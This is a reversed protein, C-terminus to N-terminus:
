DFFRLRDKVNEAELTKFGNVAPTIKRLMGTIKREGEEGWTSDRQRILDEEEGIYGFSAIHPVEHFLLQDVFDWYRELHNATAMPAKFMRITEGPNLLSLLETQLRRAQYATFAVFYNDEDDDLLGKLSSFIAMATVLYTAEMGARRMNRKDLDSLQQYLKVFQGKNGIANRMYGFLTTYFGRTVTGMELDVHYNEGHGIRRRYFPVFYNKFLLILKGAVSSAAASADMDGKIQNTRRNIGALKATFANIDFNAIKPNVRLVGDEGMILNEWLNGEIPNGQADVFGTTAHMLALMKVATTQHEVAQQGAFFPNSKAAKKLKSGTLNKGLSDYVDTMADFMQMAQALKTKNSFVGMDAIAAGEQIYTKAAWRRDARTFFEGAHAEMGTMLNDLIAQNGIQLFNFALSNLATLQIATDALKQGSIGGIEAGTVEFKGYFVKDVFDQLHKYTRDDGVMSQEVLEEAGKAKSAIVDIVGLGGQEKIVQRREHLNTMANVLGHVKGKEEYQHAMQAFQIISSIVDRSIDAADVRNTYYVPISKIEEGSNDIVAGFQTDTAQRTVGEVVADKMTAVIGQEKMRDYDTKRISPMVYSMENWPDTFMRNKGSVLEQKERYLEVVYDYYAKLEPTQDIKKFKDSLYSDNPVALSGMFRNGIPDFVKSKEERLEMLEAELIAIDMTANSRGNKILDASEQEQLQKLKEETRNIEAILDNYKAQAGPADKTNDASWKAIISRYRKYELSPKGKKDYKWAKMAAYDSPDPMKTVKAANKLMENQKKYFENTDWKQVLSLVEMTSGDPNTIEVTTLIDDNLKAVDDEQGMFSVFDKYPQESQQIVEVTRRNGNQRAARLTNAFLQLNAENSYVLPDMLASFRSKNMAAETLEKVLEKRGVKKNKLTEIKAEVLARNFGEIGEAEVIKAKNKRVARIAPDRNFVAGVRSTGSLDYPGGSALQNQLTAIEKDLETNVASEEGVSYLADAVLPAIVAAYDADISQLDDLSDRLELHIRYLKNTDDIELDGRKWEERLTRNIKNITSNSTNTNFLGDLIYKLENAKNLLDMAEQKTVPRNKYKKLEDFLQRARAAQITAFQQFGLFADIEDGIENINDLRKDLNKLLAIDSKSANDGMRRIRAMERKVAIRAEEATAKVKEQVEKSLQVMPNFEGQSIDARIEGAFLEEAMQAAADPSIGFLKGIARLIKNIIRQLKSPNNREIRAGEIGIATVLIEKALQDGSLEPYKARVAAGLEPRLQEVQAADRRVQEIPLRDVLIHAFEHYATDGTMQERDITITDGEVQGKVGTPLVGFNVKIEVGAKQFAAVLKAVQADVSKASPAPMSSVSLSRSQDPRTNYNPWILSKGEAGRIHLENFGTTSKRNLLVYSMGGDSDDRLGYIFGDLTEFYDQPANELEGVINPYLKADEESLSSIVTPVHVRFTGDPQPIKQTVYVMNPRVIAKKDGFPATGYNLIFQERTFDTLASMGKITSEVHTHQAVNLEKWVEVPIHDFLSGPGPVLGTTIITNTILSKAFARLEPDVGEDYLANRFAMDIDNVQRESRDINRELEVSYITKGSEIEKVVPRLNNLLANGPYRKKLEGLKAVINNTPDLHVEEVVAKDIYGSEYIPSGPMTAIYHAAARNLDRHMIETRGLGVARKFADLGPQTAVFGLNTMFNLSEAISARFESMLPYDEGFLIGDAEPINILDFKAQFQPITGASDINDISVARGIRAYKGAASNLRTLTNIIEQESADYITDLNINYIGAETTLNRDKGKLNNIDMGIKPLVRIINNEDMELMKDMVKRVLPHTMFPTIQQPTLGMDILLHWMNATKSTINLTEQLPDKVSDVAASLLQSLYYDSPRNSIGYADPFKSIYDIKTLKKGSATVTITDGSNTLPTLVTGSSELVNRSAIANAHQGRLANSLMNAMGTKIPTASSFIDIEEKTKGAQERSQLLDPIELPSLVEAAQQPAQMVAQFTDFIINNVESESMEEVTSPSQTYDPQIKEGDKTEPFLLFMKDIDFDSGMQTTIGAPVAIASKYGEPLVEVIEMILMSSKGQQPIRYGLIRRLDKNIDELSQGPNVGLKKLTDTRVKVQAHVVQGDKENFDLFRLSNDEETTFESFQVAEMGKMKQKYVEKRFISLILNGYKSDMGPFAFPISPVIMGERVELDLMKIQNDSLGKERAMEAIKDRVQPLVRNMVQEQELRGMSQLMEMPAGFQDMVNQKNIKLKRVVANHYWQKLAEASMVTGDAMTYDGKLNAISNKRPQRGLGTTTEPKTPLEQPFVLGRSDMRTVQPKNGIRSSRNYDRKAARYTAIQRQTFQRNILASIDVTIDEGNFEINVETGGFLYDMTELVPTNQKNALKQIGDYITAMDKHIALREAENIEAERSGAGVERARSEIAFSKGIVQQVADVLERSPVEDLESFITESFNEGVGFENLTDVTDAIERGTSTIDFAPRSALKKASEVNFVQIDDENMMTFIRELQPNGKVLDPTLVIYSNKDAFPALHGDIENSWGYFPKMPKVPMVKYDWKDTLQYREWASEMIPTWMGKGMMIHRYMKPSIFSQADTTNIAEYERAISMGAKKNNLASGIVNGLRKIHDEPLSVIIDKVTVENFERLMGYSPDAQSDGQMMLTTGPTTFLAMRKIYDAGDKTYNLGGSRLQRLMMRGMIDDRTFDKLFQLEGGPKYARSDINNKVWAVAAEEGGLEMIHNIYDEEMYGLADKVADDVAKADKESLPENLELSKNVRYLISPNGIVDISVGPANFTAWGGADYNRSGDRNLKYHYGEIMNAEDKENIVQKARAMRVLDILIQDRMFTAPNKSLLNYEERSAQDTMKPLLMFTLRKRDAQTDFAIYGLKEGANGYLNMRLALSDKYSLTEYEAAENRDGKENKVIDLDVVSVQNTFGEFNLLKVLSSTIGKTEYGYKGKMRKGLEGSQMMHVTNNMLSRLNLPYYLKGLGSLFSTAQPGDYRERFTKGFYVLTSDAKDFVNSRIGSAPEKSVLNNIIGGLGSKQVMALIPRKGPFENPYNRVLSLVRDRAQERTDAIEIGLDMLIDALANAREELSTTPSNIIAANAKLAEKIEPKVSRELVVRDRGRVVNYPGDSSETLESKWKRSWYRRASNANPSIFKVITKGTKPDTTTIPLIFNNTSLAVNAFFTAQADVPLGGIFQAASKLINVNDSRDEMRRLMETLTPAGDVTSAIVRMVEKLPVFTQFGYISEAQRQPQIPIRSLLRKSRDSIKTAPDEQLRSISYIREEIDEDTIQIESNVDDKVSYGYMQLRELVETRFGRSVNYVDGQVQEREDFWKEYVILFDDAEDLGIQKPMPTGDMQVSPAGFEFEDLVDDNETDFAEKLRDFEEDTLQRGDINYANRLFWNRIGANSTSDATGLMDVAAKNRQDEPLSDLENILKWVAIDTLENRHMPRDSFDELLYATSPAHATTKRSLKAPIRGSEILRFAQDIGIKNSAVAKIYAFLDKFFKLIRGGLGKPAQETLGYERAEEAIREELALLRAEADTMEPQGRRAKAIDKASPEGYRQVAEEYIAAQQGESLFNRFLMHFAEHYETGVEAASYIYIAANTTYGHVVNDGVKELQDFIVVADEGFLKTLRAKAKAVDVKSTAKSSLRFKKGGKREERRRAAKSKQKGSKKSAETKSATTNRKDNLMQNYLAKYLGGSAAVNIGMARQAFKSFEEWSKGREIFQEATEWFENFTEEGTKDWLGDTNLSGFDRGIKDEALNATPGVGSANLATRNLDDKTIRNTEGSTQAPTESTLGERLADFLEGGLGEAAEKASMSEVSPTTADFARADAPKSTPVAGTEAKSRATSVGFEFKVDYHLAGNITKFDGALIPRDGEFQTKDSLYELHNDYTTDNIPSQREQPSNIKAADVQFKSQSVVIDIDDQMKGQIPGLEESELTIPSFEMDEGEPAKVLKGVEVGAIRNDAYDQASVRAFYPSDPIRYIIMGDETMIIKTAETLMIPMGMINRVAEVDGEMLAQKVLGMAKSSDAMNKTSLKLITVRGAPDRVVLGAEGPATKGRERTLVEQAEGYLPHDAMGLDWVLQRQGDVITYRLVAIAAEKNAIMEPDIVENVPTFVPDGAADKLNNPNAFIQNNIKGKVEGENKIRNYLEARGQGAQVLGILQDGLYIGIASNSAETSKGKNGQTYAHDELIRFTVESGILNQAHLKRGEMLEAEYKSDVADSGVSPNGAVDVLIASKDETLTYQGQALNIGKVTETYEPLGDKDFEQERINDAQESGTESTDFDEATPGETSEAIPEEQGQKKRKNIHQELIEKTFPDTEEALRKELEVLSERRFQKELDIAKDILEQQKADLKDLVEKSASQNAKTRIDELQKESYASDIQKLFDNNIAAKAAQEEKVLERSKYAERTVPDSYLQRLSDVAVARDFTLRAIDGLKDKAEQHKQPDTSELRAGVEGLKQRLAENLNAVNRSTVKGEGDIETVKGLPGDLAGAARFDDVSLNAKPDLENIENVLKEIRSDADNLGYTSLLALHKLYSTDEMLALEKQKQEQTMALRGVGQTQRPTPFQSDMRDKLEAIEKASKKLASVADKKDFKVGDPIGFATRVESDEMNSIDDLRELYMDLSGREIHALVEHLQARGMADRYLKHDGAELANAAEQLGMISEQANQGAKIAAIIRPNNLMQVTEARYKSDDKGELATRISGFGGTMLGVIGGILMSEQGEKSGFTESLGHEFADAWTAISGDRSTAKAGAGSSITYQLGEQISENLTNKLVPLGYKTLARKTGSMEALRDIYEGKANKSFYNFQPRANNFKPFLTKGFTAFNTGGTVALNAIFGVNAVEAARAKAELQRERSLDKIDVGDEEAFQELLNDTASHLIERAEVSSEGYSMMIGMEANRAATLARSGITSGKQAINVADAANDIAKAANYIRAAKSAKGAKATLNAARGVLGMGGTLYITAVSGLSYGLGNAVKDAWFNAYGLNQLGKANREAETAYNPFNYQMWENVKDITNGVRNDYLKTIDQNVTAEFIGDLAGITNEAIAGVTTVGAKTLGNVWKEGTSQARARREEWDGPTLVIGYKQYRSIDERAPTINSSQSLTAVENEVPLGTAPNIRQNGNGVASGVPEGTAPNIRPENAM